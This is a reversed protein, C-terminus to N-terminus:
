NAADMAAREAASRLICFENGEPDLLVVWGSGDPNRRDADITAGLELLREVEVERGSDPRLCLHMRNKVVKREPVQAFYLNFGAPLTFTVEPDGPKNGDDLPQGTVESWFTALKYADACDFNVNFVTSTM